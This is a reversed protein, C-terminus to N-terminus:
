WEGAGAIVMRSLRSPGLKGRRQSIRRRIIDVESRRRIRMMSEEEVVFRRMLVDDRLSKGRFIRRTREVSSRSPVAVSKSRTYSNSRRPTADSRFSEGQSTSSIPACLCVHTLSTAIRLSSCKKLKSRTSHSPIPTKRETPKWIKIAEVVRRYRTKRSDSRIPQNISWRCCNVVTLFELDSSDFFCVLDSWWVNM